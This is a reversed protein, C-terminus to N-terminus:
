RVIWAHDDRHPDPLRQLTSLRAFEADAMNMVMRHKPVSPLRSPQTTM